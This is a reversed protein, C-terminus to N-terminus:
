ATRRAIPPLDLMTALARAADVPRLSPDHTGGDEGPYMTMPSMVLCGGRPKPRADVHVLAPMREDLLRITDGDISGGIAGTRPSIPERDDIWIPVFPSPAHVTCATSAAACLALRMDDVAPLTPDPRVCRTPATIVVITGVDIPDVPRMAHDTLAKELHALTADALDVMDRGSGPPADGCPVCLKDLGNGFFRIRIQDHVRDHGILAVFARCAFAGEDAGDVEVRAEGDKTTWRSTKERTRRLAHRFEGAAHLTADPTAACDIAGFPRATATDTM